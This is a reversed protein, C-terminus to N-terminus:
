RKKKRATGDKPSAKRKKQAKAKEKSKKKMSNEQSEKSPKRKRKHKILHEMESRDRNAGTRYATFGIKAQTQTEKRLSKSTDKFNNRKFIWEMGKTQFKSSRWLM